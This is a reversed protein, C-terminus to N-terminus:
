EVPTGKDRDRSPRGGFWSGLTLGALGGLGAGLVLGRMRRALGLFGYLERDEWGEVSILSHGVIAGLVVGVVLGLCGGGVMALVAQRKM